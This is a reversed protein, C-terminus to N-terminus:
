NIKPKKNENENKKTNGLVQLKNTKSFFVPIAAIKISSIDAIDGIDKSLSDEKQITNNPNITISNDNENDIEIKM